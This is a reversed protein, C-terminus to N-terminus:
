VFNVRQECSLSIFGSVDYRMVDLIKKWTRNQEHIEDVLLM